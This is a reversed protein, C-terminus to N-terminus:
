YRYHFPEVAALGETDLTKFGKKEVLREAKELQDVDVVFVAHVHNELVFGYANNINIGEQYLLQTLRDLGGPRDDILVALVPRIRVMMGAKSLATHARDPDDVILNIVGFTDSTTITTARINIKERALVATVAALSGPRNEAFVSLQSAIM